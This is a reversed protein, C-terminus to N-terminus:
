IKKKNTEVSPLLDASEKLIDYDGGIIWLPPIRSTQPIGPFRQASNISGFAGRRKFDQRPFTKANLGWGWDLRGHRM